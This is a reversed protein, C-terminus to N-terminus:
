AARRRTLRQRFARWATKLRSSSAGWNVGKANRANAQAQQHIIAAHAHPEILPKATEVQIRGAKQLIPNRSRLSEMGNGYMRYGSESEARTHDLMRRATKQQAAPVQPGLQQIEKWIADIEEKRALAKQYSERQHPTENKGHGSEKLLDAYDHQLNDM